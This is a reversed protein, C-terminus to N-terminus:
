DLPDSFGRLCGLSGGRQPWVGRRRQGCVSSTQQVSDVAPRTAACSGCFDVCPAQRVRAEQADPACVGRWVARRSLARAHPKPSTHTEVADGATYVVFVILEVSGCPKPSEGARTERRETIFFEAEVEHPLTLIEEYM